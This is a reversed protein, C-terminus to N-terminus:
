SKKDEFLMDQCYYNMTRVGLPTGLFVTHRILNLVFLVLTKRKQELVYNEEHDLNNVTM